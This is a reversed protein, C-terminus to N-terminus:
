GSDWESSKGLQKGIIGYKYKMDPLIETDKAHFAFVKVGFEKLAHIYDIGEWFLHSPDFELGLAYSPLADFMAEWMEPSFFINGVHIPYGIWHPCNELAIRVGADEAIKTYERFVKKFEKLNEDPSIDPNAWANSMVIDTGFNRASRIVKKFYKSNEKRKEPKGELHNVNSALTGFKINNEKFNDLVKELSKETLKDLDILTGRDVCVELCDFGSSMAMKVIDESYNAVFGFNM